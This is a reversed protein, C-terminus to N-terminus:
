LRYGYEIKPTLHWKKFWYSAEVKHIGCSFSIRNKNENFTKGFLVRPGVYVKDWILMYGGFGLYIGDEKIPSFHYQYQFTVYPASALIVSNVGIGVELANKGFREGYSISASPIPLIQLNIGSDLYVYSEGPESDFFSYDEEEANASFLVCMCASISLILKNM